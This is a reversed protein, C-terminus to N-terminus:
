RGMMPYLFGYYGADNIIVGPVKAERNHFGVDGGSLSRPAYGEAESNPHTHFWALVDLKNSTPRSGVLGKIQDRTGSPVRIVDLTGSEKNKVIWGGQEKKKSGPIGRAVEPADPNSEEWAKNLKTQVGKDNMFEFLGFKESGLKEPNCRQGVCNSLLIPSDSSPEAGQSPIGVNTSNNKGQEKVTNQQGEIESAQVPQNAQAMSQSQKAGNGKKTEISGKKDRSPSLMGYGGQNADLKECVGDLRSAACGRYGTPDTGALPNNMIYSYPNLSQSNGPSQIIPDVSLFRGLNYDYVRGNMHILQAADLHEHDTFGRQTFPTGSIIGALTAPSAQRYDGKRPKGFPDYSRHETLVNAENTLSVVSGLRDRLTYRIAYNANSQGALQTKSLIAIDDIYLRTTTSNGKIEVEAAKGIYHTTATGSSNTLVQKYRQLDAGYSFVNSTGNRSVTLPMNFANYTLTKGDGQLM